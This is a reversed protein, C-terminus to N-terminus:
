WGARVDHHQKHKQAWFTKASSLSCMPLLAREGEKEAEQPTSESTRGEPDRVCISLVPVSGCVSLRVCAQPPASDASRKEESWVPECVCVRGVHMPCLRILQCGILQAFFATHVVLHAYSRCSEREREGRSEGIRGCECV